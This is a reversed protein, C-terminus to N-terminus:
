SRARRQRVIVELGLWGMLIFLMGTRITQKGREVDGIFRNGWGATAALDSQKINSKKRVARLIPGLEAMSSVKFGSQTYVSAITSPSAMIKKKTGNPLKVDFFL